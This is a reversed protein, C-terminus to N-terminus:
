HANMLRIDDFEPYRNFMARAFPCLTIVYRHQSRAMNAVSRVLALGIHRHRFDPDVGTYDIILKDAGVRVFTIEGVKQGHSIADFGDGSQTLFYQVEDPM